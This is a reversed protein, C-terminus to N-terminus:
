VEKNIEAARQARKTEFGRRASSALECDGLMGITIEMEREWEKYEDDTMRAPPIDALHVVPNNRRNEVAVGRDPFFAGLAAKAAVARCWASKSRVVVTGALITGALEDLVQQAVEPPISDLAAAMATKEVDTCNPPYVLATGVSVVDKEESSFGVVVSKVKVAKEESSFVGGSKGTSVKPPQPPQHPTTTKEKQEQRQQQLPTVNTVNRSAVTVPTVNTVPPTVGDLEAVNPTAGAVNPTAGEDKARRRAQRQADTMPPPKPSDSNIIAHAQYEWKALAVTGTDTEELYGSAMAETIIAPDDERLFWALNRPNMGTDPGGAAGAICFAGLILCRASPTLGWFAQDCPLNTPVATWPLNGLGKM